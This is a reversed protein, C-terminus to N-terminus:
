RTLLVEAFADAIRAHGSDDPHLCDLGGVLDEAQLVGHTEAVVAGTREASRRIIDNLGDPVVTGDGGLPGGELVVGALETLGALHCSGLPNYYTMVAIATDPGAATALEELIASLNDAVQELQDAVTTACAPSSPDGCARLVPGFVDNGGVTLTVVRVENFAFADSNRAELQAVAAPLQDRILDASTAGPVAHNTRWLGVCGPVRVFWKSPWCDLERHLRQHLRAVYGGHPPLVAGVGYAVSDGLALYLPAVSLDMTEPVATAVEASAPPSAAFSALVALSILVALLRARPVSRAKPVM